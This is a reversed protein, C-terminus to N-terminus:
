DVVDAAGLRAEAAAFVVPDSLDRVPKDPIVEAGAPNLLAGVFGAIEDPADAVILPGFFTVEVLGASLSAVTLVDETDLLAVTRGLSIVGLDGSRFVVVTSRLAEVRVDAAGLLGAELAALVVVVVVVFVVFDGVVVEDVSLFSGVVLLGGEDSDTVEGTLVPVCEALDERLPPVAAFLSDVMCPLGAGDAVEEPGVLDM